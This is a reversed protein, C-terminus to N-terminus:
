QGLTMPPPLLPALQRPEHRVREKILYWVAVALLLSVLWPKWDRTLVDSM